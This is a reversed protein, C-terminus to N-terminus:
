IEQFGHNDKGIEGKLPSPYDRTLGFPAKVFRYRYKKGFKERILFKEDYLYKVYARAKTAATDESIDEYASFLYKTVDKIDFIRPMKLFIHEIKEKFLPVSGVKVYMEGTEDLKQKRYSKRGITRINQQRKATYKPLKAKPEAELKPEPEPEIPPIEAIPEAPLDVVPEPEDPIEVIPEAPLDQSPEAPLDQSPEAPNDPQRNGKYVDMLYRPPRRYYELPDEEETKESEEIVQKLGENNFGTGHLLVGPDENVAEIIEPEIISASIPNVHVLNHLDEPIKIELSDPLIKDTDEPIKIGPDEPEKPSIQELPEDVNLLPNQEKDIRQKLNQIQTYNVKEVSKNKIKKATAKVDYVTIFDIAAKVPDIGHSRNTRLVFVNGLIKVENLIGDEVNWVVVDKEYDPSDPTKDTSDTEM